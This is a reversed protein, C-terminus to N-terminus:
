NTGDTTQLDNTSVARRMRIFGTGRPTKQEEGATEFQLSRYFEVADLRANCWLLTGGREAIYRIGQLLVARGYGKRRVEPRTVMGRLRWARAHSEGPPPEHFLSAVTVLKNGSYAGLHLSEPDDDLPYINAEPPAGPRLFEARLPRAEEASIKGVDMINEAQLELAFTKLVARQAPASQAAM